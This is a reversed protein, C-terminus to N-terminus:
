LELLAALYHAVGDDDNSGTVEDVVALVEPHANAVGVSHGAWLLMPVDNPMDGFALVDAPAVGLREAVVALGTAKNVGTPCVELFGLGAYTVEAVEVPVVRRAVALFADVDMGPRAVFVKLLDGGFLADRACEEWADPFPWVFGAEGRLMAGDAEGDEVTVLVPGVEAEILKVAGRVTEGALRASFLAAGTERDLVYAGQACVLYRGVALDSATLGRLRPGRGTVGVVEIGADRVRGLVERAYASVTADSHVLTGDLDTAVLRPRRTLAPRQM